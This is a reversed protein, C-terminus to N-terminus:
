SKPQSQGQTEFGPHICWWKCDERPQAYHDETLESGSYQRKADDPKSDVAYSELDKAIVVHPLYKVSKYVIVVMTEKLLKPRM